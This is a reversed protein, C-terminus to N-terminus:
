SEHVHTNLWEKYCGRNVQDTSLSQNASNAFFTGFCNFNRHLRQNFFTESRFFGLGYLDCLAFAAADTVVCTVFAASTQILHHFHVVLDFLEHEDARGCNLELFFRNLSSHDGQAAATQDLNRCPDRREFFHCAFCNVLGQRQGDTTPRRGPLTLEFSSYLNDSRAPQDFYQSNSAFSWRRAVLSSVSFP